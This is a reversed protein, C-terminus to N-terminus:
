GLMDRIRILREFDADPPMTDSVGLIFRSRNGIAALTEEMFREFQEAPYDPMLIVSPIGGWVTMGESRRLIERIDTKTMPAPAVAELVDIGSQRYLDFLGRNEGDAHILVFKGREHAMGAFRQIWPLIHEEYFPPYTITEDTNAGFIVVEVPCGAALPMFREFYGGIAAALKALREPADMLQFFFYNMDM